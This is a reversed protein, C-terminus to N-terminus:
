ANALLDDIEAGTLTRRELLAATIRDVQSRRQEIIGQAKKWACQKPLYPAAACLRDAAQTSIIADGYNGWSPQEPAGAQGAAAILMAQWDTPLSEPCGTVGGGTNGVQEITVDKIPLRLYRYM